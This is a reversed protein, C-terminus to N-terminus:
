KFVRSRCFNTFQFSLFLWLRITQVPHFVVRHDLMQNQIAPSHIMGVMRAGLFYVVRVFLWRCIISKFCLKTNIRSSESRGFRPMWLLKSCGSWPDVFAGIFMVLRCQGHVVSPSLHNPLEDVLVRPMWATQTRLDANWVKPKLRKWAIKKLSIVALNSVSPPLFHNPFSTM